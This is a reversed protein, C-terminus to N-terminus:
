REHDGKSVSKGKWQQRRQQFPMEGVTCSDREVGTQQSRGVRQRQGQERRQDSIEGVTM